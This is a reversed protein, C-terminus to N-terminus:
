WTAYNKSKREEERKQQQEYLEAARRLEEQRTPKSVSISVPHDPLEEANMLIGSPDFTYRPLEAVCQRQGRTCSAKLRFSTSDSEFIHEKLLDKQVHPCGECGEINLDIRHHLNKIIQRELATADVASRFQMRDILQEVYHSDRQLPYYGLTQETM